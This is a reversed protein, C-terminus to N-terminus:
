RLFVIAYAAAAIVLGVLIGILFAEREPELWWRKKSPKMIDDTPVIRVRRCLMAYEQMQKLAREAAEEEM